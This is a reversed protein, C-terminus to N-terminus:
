DRNNQLATAIAFILLILTTLILAMTCTTYICHPSLNKSLKQNSSDGQHATTKKQFGSEGGEEASVLKQHAGTGQGIQSTSGFPVRDM